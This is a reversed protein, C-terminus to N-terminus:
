HQTEHRGHRTETSPVALQKGGFDRVISHLGTQSEDPHIHLTGMGDVDSVIQNFLNVNGFGNRTVSKSLLSFSKAEPEFSLVTGTNGVRHAALLTFWGVNAGVDIVKSGRGLLSLFIETTPLEYSGAVGIWPTVFAEQTNLYIYFGRTQKLEVPQEAYKERLIEDIYVATSYLGGRLRPIISPHRLILSGEQFLCKLSASLFRKM